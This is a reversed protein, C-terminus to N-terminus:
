ETKPETYQRRQHFYVLFKKFDGLGVEFAEPSSVYALDYVWDDIRVVALAMKVKAGDLSGEAVTWLAQRQDVQIMEHEFIRRDTLDFMLHNRLAVLGAKRNPAYVVNVMIAQGHIRNLFGAKADGSTLREWGFPLPGTMFRVGEATIERPAVGEDPAQKSSVVPKSTVSCGAALALALTLVIIWGGRVKM